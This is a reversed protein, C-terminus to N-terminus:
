FSPRPSSSTLTILPSCLRMHARAHALLSDSTTAAHGMPVLYCRTMRARPSPPFSILAPPARAKSANARAVGHLVNVTAKVDHLLRARVMRGVPTRDDGLGYGIDGPNAIVVDYDRTVAKWFPACFTGLMQGSRTFNVRSRKKLAMLRAERAACYQSAAVVPHFLSINLRLEPVLIGRDLPYQHFVKRRDAGGLIDVGRAAPMSLKFGHRRLDCLMAFLVQATISIGVLVVKRGRLGRAQLPLPM